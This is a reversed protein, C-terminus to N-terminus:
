KQQNQKITHCSTLHLFRNCEEETWGRTLRSEALAVLEEMELARVRVTGDLSATTLYRGDPSYVGDYILDSHDELTLLRDGTNADWIKISEGGITGIQSGDPKFALRFVAHNFAEFTFLRDGTVVDWITVTGDWTGAALRDGEPNYVVDRVGSSHTGLNMIQEGTKLDWSVVREDPTIEGEVDGDGSQILTALNNDWPSTTLIGDDPHFALGWTPAPNEIVNVERGNQDWIRVTYDQSASALYRDDPSFTINNVFDTHGDITKLQEGTAADWVIIVPPVDSSSALLSGDTSYSLGGVFEEHGEQQWILDGTDADWVAVNGTVSTTAL